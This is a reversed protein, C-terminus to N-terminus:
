SLKRRHPVKSCLHLRDERESCELYENAPDLPGRGGVIIVRLPLKKTQHVLGRGEWIEGMALEKAIRELLIPKEIGEPYFIVKGVSRFIFKLEGLIPEMLNSKGFGRDAVLILEVGESLRKLHRIFALEIKNQALTLKRRLCLVEAFVLARGLPSPLAAGLLAWDGKTVWDIIVPVQSDAPFRHAIGLWLAQNFSKLTFARNKLFRFLQKKKAEFSVKRPIARILSSLTQKEPWDGGELLGAILWSLTKLRSLRIGPLIAMLFTLIGEFMGGLGGKAETIGFWIFM